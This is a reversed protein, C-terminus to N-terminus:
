TENHEGNLKRFLVSREILQNYDGEEVINGNDFVFIKDSNKLSKIRHAIMIITTDNKLELISNIIFNENIGDLASTAEDFVLVDPNRYLARAIIIRQKQGGSLQASHNDLVTNLALPLSDVYECLATLQICEEIKEYDIENEDIGLAINEAITGHILCLDQPVYGFVSKYDSLKMNELREGNIEISGSTKGVLGLLISIFTSKGSGSAGVIGIKQGKFIEVNIGKLINNENITYQLKTINLKNFPLRSVIPEKGGRNEAYISQPTLHENLLWPLVEYLVSTNGKVMAVSAYVQQAAPLIKFAAAGFGSLSAVIATLTSADQMSQLIFSLIIILLAIYEILYRPIQSIAASEGKKNALVEGNQFFKLKQKNLLNYLKFEKILNITDELNNLRAKNSKTIAIGNGELRKRILLFLVLYSSIFLSIALLSILPNMYFMYLSICVVLIIKSNIIMLPQIIQDTLRTTENTILNTIESKKTKGFDVLSSNILMEFLRDAVNVGTIAAFNVLKWLALASTMTAVLLFVLLSIGFLVILNVEFDIFNALETFVTVSNVDTIFTIYPSILSISVIEMFVSFIVLAQLKLYRIRTEKPFAKYLLCINKIFSNNNLNM